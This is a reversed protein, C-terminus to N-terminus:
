LVGIYMLWSFVFILLGIFTFAYIFFMVLINELIHEKLWTLLIM